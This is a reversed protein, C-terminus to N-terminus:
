KKILKQKLVGIIKILLEHIEKTTLVNHTIRYLGMYIVFVLTTCVVLVLFCNSLGAKTVVLSYVLFGIGVAAITYAFVTGLSKLIDKAKIKIYYASVVTTLIYMISFAVTVGLAVASLGYFHGIYAGLIVCVAYAFQIAASQYVKGLSRILSNGLKYATRFFLGCIMVCLSPNNDRM